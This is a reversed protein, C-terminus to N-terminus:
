KGPYIAGLVVAKAAGTVSPINGPLHQLTQRALWAFATAEVWRPALGFDETTCVRCEPLHASLRELLFDNYAGGGCVILEHCTPAHQRIAEEISQCTLEILTAQVDQASAAELAHKRLWDLNFHERGTSKPPPLSFYPDSLLSSLLQNNGKGRRAWQGEADYLYGSTHQIWADLLVNGPGTDFGRVPMNADAPLISINAMGGINLVVREIERSRYLAAHFAPVLPAGQGGVSMDRRRFDTVTTIGTTQAITNGDGIQVTYSPSSNPAHRITQGHSGIATVQAPDLNADALLKLVTQASFRGLQVDAIAMRELENERSATLSLLQQRLDAPLPQSLHAILRPHQASMDILVADLADMSTGSMLGIYAEDM